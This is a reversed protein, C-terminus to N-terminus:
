SERDLHWGVFCKGSNAYQDAVLIRSRHARRCKDPVLLTSHSWSQETKCDRDRKRLLRGIHQLSRLRLQRIGGSGDRFIGTRLGYVAAIEALNALRPPGAVRDHSVLPRATGLEHEGSGVPQAEVHFDGIPSVFDVAPGARPADGRLFDFAQSAASWQTGAREPGKQDIDEGIGCHLELVEALLLRQVLITVPHRDGGTMVAHLCASRPPGGAVISREAQFGNRRSQLLKSNSRKLKQGGGRSAFGGRDHIELRQLDACALVHDWVLRAELHDAPVGPECFVRSDIRCAVFKVAFGYDAEVIGNRLRSEAWFQVTVNARLTQRRSQRNNASSVSISVSRAAAPSGTVALTPFVSMSGMVLRTSAGAPENTRPRM